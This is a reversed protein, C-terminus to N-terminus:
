IKFLANGQLHFIGKVPVILQQPQPEILVAEAGLAPLLDRAVGAPIQM